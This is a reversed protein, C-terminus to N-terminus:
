IWIWDIFKQWFTRTDVKSPIGYDECVEAIANYEETTLDLNCTIDLIGLSNDFVSFEKGNIFGSIFNYDMDYEFDFSINQNNILEYFM